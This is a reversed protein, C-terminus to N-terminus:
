IKKNLMYITNMGNLRYTRFADTGLLSKLSKVIKGYYSSARRNNYLTDMVLDIVADSGGTLKFCSLLRGSKGPFVGNGRKTKVILVARQSNSAPRSGRRDMHYRFILVDGAKIMDASPPIETLVSAHEENIYSLFTLIEPSPQYAPM